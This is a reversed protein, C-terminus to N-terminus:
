PPITGAPRHYAACPRATSEAPLTYTASGYLPRTWLISWDPAIVVTAPKGIPYNPGPTATCKSLTNRCSSTWEAVTFGPLPLPAMRSLTALPPIRTRGRPPLAARRRSVSFNSGIESVGSGSAAPWHGIGIAPSRRGRNSGIDADSRTWPLRALVGGVSTRRDQPAFRRAFCQGSIGCRRPM